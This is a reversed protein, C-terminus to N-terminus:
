WVIRGPPSLPNHSQTCCPTEVPERQTNHALKPQANCHLFRVHRKLPRMVAKDDDYAVMHKDSKRYGDDREATSLAFSLIIVGHIVLLMCDVMKATSSAAEEVVEVNHTRTLLFSV